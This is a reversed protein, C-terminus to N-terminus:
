IYYGVLKNLVPSRAFDANLSGFFLSAGGTVAELQSDTLEGAPPGATQVQAKTIVDLEHVTCKFGAKNAVQHILGVAEDHELEEAALLEKQLATDELVRNWFRTVVEAVQLEQASCDFGAERAIRSLEAFVIAAEKGQLKSSGAGHSTVQKQLDPNTPVTRWFEVVADMSM